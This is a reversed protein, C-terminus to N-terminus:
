YNMEYWWCIFPATNNKALNGAWVMHNAVFFLEGGGVRWDFYRISKILLFFALRLFKYLCIDFMIESTSMKHGIMAHFDAESFLCIMMLWREDIPIIKKRTRVDFDEENM